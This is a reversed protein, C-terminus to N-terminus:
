CIVRASHIVGKTYCKVLVVVCAVPITARSVVVGMTFLKVFPLRRPFTVQLASLLGFFSFLANKVFLKCISFASNVKLIFIAFIACFPM